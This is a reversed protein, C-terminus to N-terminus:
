CKLVDAYKTIGRRISELGFEEIKIDDINLFFLESVDDAPRPFVDEHLRIEFFLDVTHVDVGSYPYVNTLTFCYRPDSVAMGTEEKVERVIAEEATEYYDVFGGPLDLTGKAPEKARRAVLLRGEKDIIFAATSAATNFYYVFGCDECRKSKFDNEVFRPSACAPCYKFKM